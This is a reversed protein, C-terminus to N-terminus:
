PQGEIEAEDTMPRGGGAPQFVAQLFGGPGGRVFLRDPANLQDADRRADVLEVVARSVFRNTGPIRELVVPLRERLEPAGTEPRVLQPLPDGRSVKVAREANTRGFAYGSLGTARVDYGTAPEYHAEEGPNPRSRPVGTRADATGIKDATAELIYKVQAATLDANVSLMLACIGAV